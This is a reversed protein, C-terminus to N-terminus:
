QVEIYDNNRSSRLLSRLQDRTDINNTDLVISLNESTSHTELSAKPKGILRDFLFSITRLRHANDPVFELHASTGHGVILAQDAVIGDELVKVVDSYKERMIQEVIEIAKPKKPRGALAQPGYFGVSEKTERDQHAICFDSNHLPHGECPKGNKTLKKCYRKEQAVNTQEVSSGPHIPKVEIPEVKEVSGAIKQGSDGGVTPKRQAVNTQAVARACEKDELEKLENKLFRNKLEYGHLLNPQKKSNDILIELAGIEEQLWEKMLREQNYTM